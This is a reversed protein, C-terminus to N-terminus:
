PALAGARAGPGYWLVSASQGCSAVRRPDRPFGPGEGGLVRPWMGSAM